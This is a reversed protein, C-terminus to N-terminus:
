ACDDVVGWEADCSISPESEGTPLNAAANSSARRWRSNSIACNVWLFLKKMIKWPTSIAPRIWDPPAAAGTTAKATQAAPNRTDIRWIPIAAPEFYQCTRQSRAAFVVSIQNSSASLSSGRTLWKKVASLSPNFCLSSVRSFTTFEVKARWASGSSIMAFAVVLAFRSSSASPLGQIQCLNQFLTM